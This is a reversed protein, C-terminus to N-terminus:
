FRSRGFGQFLESASPIENNDIEDRDSYLGRYAYKNELSRRIPRPATPASTLMTEEVGVHSQRSYHSSCHSYHSSGRSHYSLSSGSHYSERSTRSHHSATSGQSVHSQHSASSGRSAHSHQSSHSAAGTSAATSATSSYVSNSSSTSLIAARNMVDESQKDFVENLDQRAKMIDKSHTDIGLLDNVAQRFAGKERSDFELLDMSNLISALAVTSPKHLVSSTYDTVALELQLRTFEILCSILNNHINEGNELRPIVKALLAIGRQAIPLCTPACLRWQLGRLVIIEMERINDASYCGQSAGVLTEVDLHAVELCKTAISLCVLGLLQLKTVSRRAESAAREDRLSLFIDVYAMAMAVTQRQLDFYDVIDALWQAVKARAEPSVLSQNNPSSGKGKRLYDRCRYHTSEEQELLVLTQDILDGTTLYFISFIDDTDPKTM